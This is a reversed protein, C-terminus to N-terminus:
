ELQMSRCELRARGGDGGVRGGFDPVALTRLARRYCARRYTGKARAATREDEALSLWSIAVPHVRV